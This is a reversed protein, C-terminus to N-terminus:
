ARPRCLINLHRGDSFPGYGIRAHGGPEIIGFEYGLESLWEKLEDVSTGARSLAKANVEMVLVPRFREIAAVGGKLARLEAGEIDLKMADIRKVDHAAVYDDITSTEIEEKRFGPTDAAFMTSMGPNYIAGSYTQEPVFIAATGREDSLALQNLHVNTLGNRAVNDQLRSYASPVPEFAHVAGGPAVWRSLALSFTGINAGIDFVVADSQLNRKLAQLAARDGVQFGWWFVQCEIQDNLRVNMKLDSDWSVLFQRDGNKAAYWQRLPELVRRGIKQTVTSVAMSRAVAQAVRLGPYQLFSLPIPENLQKM